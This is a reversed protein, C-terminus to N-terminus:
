GRTDRPALRRPRIGRHLGFTRRPAHRQHCAAGIAARDTRVDGGITCSRDRAAALRGQQGVPVAAISGAQRELRSAPCPRLRARVPLWGNAGGRRGSTDPPLPPPSDIAVFRDFSSDSAAAAVSTTPAHLEPGPPDGAGLPEPDASQAPVPAWAPAFRWIGSTSAPLNLTAITRM